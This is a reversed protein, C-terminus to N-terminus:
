VKKTINYKGMLDSFLYCANAEIPYSKNEMHKITLWVIDDRLEEEPSKPKKIAKLSVRKYVSGLDENASEVIVVGQEDPKSVVLVGSGTPFEVEDGIEPSWESLEQKDAKPPLPITIQKRKDVEPIFRKLKTFLIESSNFYFFKKENGVDVVKFEANKALEIIFEAHEPSQVEGYTNQLYEPTIDIFAPMSFRENYNGIEYTEGDILTVLGYVLVIVTCLYRKTIYNYSFPM